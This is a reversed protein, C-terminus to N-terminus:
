RARIICKNLQRDCSLLCKSQRGDRDGAGGTWDACTGLCNSAKDECQLATAAGAATNLLVTTGIFTLAFFHQRTM